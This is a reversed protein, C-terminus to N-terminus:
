GLKASWDTTGSATGRTMGDRYNVICKMFENMGTQRVLSHYRRRDGRTMGDCTFVPNMRSLVIM